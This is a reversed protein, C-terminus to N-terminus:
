QLSPNPHQVLRRTPTRHLCHYEARLLHPATQAAPTTPNPIPNKIIDNTAWGYTPCDKNECWGHPIMCGIGVDTLEYNIKSGCHKCKGIM